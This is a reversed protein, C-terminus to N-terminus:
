FAARAQDIEADTIKFFRNRRDREADLTRFDGGMLNTEFMVGPYARPGAIYKFGCMAKYFPMMKPLVAILAFDARGANCVIMGARVLAGYLTTRFSNNNLDPAVVMRTFEVMRGSGPSSLIDTDGFVSQCPMTPTDSGARGFALRLSGICADNHFAGITQTTDMDDYVDSFQQRACSDILKAASYARYRLEFISRRDTNKSFIRLDIPFNKRANGANSDLVLPPSFDMDRIVRYM